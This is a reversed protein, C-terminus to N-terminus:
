ASDPRRTLLLDQQQTPLTEIRRLPTPAQWDLYWVLDYLNTIEYAMFGAAKLREFLKSWAAPDDKPTAEVVIDMTPPYLSLRDLLNNLIAPEGGEVDIKLLRLRALEDATLIQDLPQADISETLVGGRSASTTAAGINRKSTQYIDLRGPRDSVAVNVARTNASLANLALNRQLLGFTRPSAEISVVRGTPGVRSSGLLTDYGVNAGVDVFVDGSALNREIVKSVDPEWVGFHLIFRQIYDEPDCRMRADFSTTAMYDPRVMRLAINYARFAARKAISGPLWRILEVIARNLLRIM